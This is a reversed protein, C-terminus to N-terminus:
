EVEKWDSTAAGRLSLYVVTMSASNHGLLKQVTRVVALKNERTKYTVDANKISERHKDLWKDLRMDAADDPLTVDLYM